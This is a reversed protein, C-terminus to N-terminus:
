LDASPVGTRQVTKNPTKKPQVLRTGVQAERSRMDAFIATVDYNFRRAISERIQHVAEVIPDNLM